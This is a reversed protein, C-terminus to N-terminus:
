YAFAKDLLLYSNISDPDQTKARALKQTKASYVQRKKAKIDDWRLPNFFTSSETCLSKKMWPRITM